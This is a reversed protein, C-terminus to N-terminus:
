VKVASIGVVLMCKLDEKTTICVYEHNEPVFIFQEGNFYCFYNEVLKLQAIAENLSTPFVPYIKRRKDYMAKRV